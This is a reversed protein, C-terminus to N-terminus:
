MCSLWQRASSRGSVRLPSLPTHSPWPDFDRVGTLCGWFPYGQDCGRGSITAPGKLRMEISLVGCYYTVREVCTPVCKALFHGCLIAFCPEHPVNVRISVTCSIVRLGCACAWAAQSGASIRKRDGSCLLMALGVLLCADRQSCLRLFRAGGGGTVLDDHRLGCQRCVAKREGLFLVPTCCSWSRLTSWKM